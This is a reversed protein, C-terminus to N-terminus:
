EEWSNKIRQPFQPWILDLEQEAAIHVAREAATLGLQSEKMHYGDIRDLLEYVRKVVEQEEPYIPIEERKIAARLWPDGPKDRAFAGVFHTPPHFAIVRNVPADPRGGPRFYDPHLTDGRQTDWHLTRLSM